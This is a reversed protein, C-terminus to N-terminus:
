ESTQNTHTEQDTPEEETLIIIECETKETTSAEEEIEEDTLAEEEYNEPFLNGAM